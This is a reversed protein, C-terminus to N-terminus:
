FGTLECDPRRPVSQCCVSRFRLGAACVDPPDSLMLVLEPAPLVAAAGVTQVAPSSRTLAMRGSRNSTSRHSSCLVVPVEPSCPELISVGSVGSM